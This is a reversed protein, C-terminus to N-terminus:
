GTLKIVEVGLNATESENQSALSGTSILARTFFGDICVQSPSCLKGPDLWDSAQAGPVQYGTIVFAAFGLLTYSTYRGQGQVSSYVPVYVPTRSLWAQHLADKCANTASAGPKGTYQGGIQVQCTGSQDRIWGFEGPASSHAPGSLCNRDEAPISGHLGSGAHLIIQQDAYVPPNPLSAYVAGDGTAGSWACASVTFAVTSESAPAGWQAQACAYVTTGQYNRGGVLARAFVPPLLSGTPTRTMTRVDVYNTGEAPNPACDTIGNTYPRDSGFGCGDLPDSGCVLQVGAQHGTLASANATAQGIALAPDCGGLACSKAVALAGADAGNQLEARNQYIQGVDVVLAGMGLLVGGGLFIAVILGVAGRDDRGLLRLMPRTLGIILDRM